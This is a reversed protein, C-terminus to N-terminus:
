NSEIVPTSLQEFQVAEDTMSVGSADALKELCRYKPISVPTAVPTLM